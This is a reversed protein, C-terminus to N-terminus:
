SKCCSEFSHIIILGLSSASQGAKEIYKSSKLIDAFFQHYLLFGFSIIFLFMCASVMMWIWEPKKWFPVKKATEDDM